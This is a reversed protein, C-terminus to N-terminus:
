QYVISSCPPGSRAMQSNNPCPYWCLFQTVQIPKFHPHNKHYTLTCPKSDPLGISSDQEVM